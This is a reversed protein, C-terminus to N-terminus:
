YTASVEEYPLGLAAAIEQGLGRGADRQTRAVLIDPTGDRGVLRVREHTGGPGDLPPGMREVRVATFQRVPYRGRPGALRVGYLMGPQVEVAEATITGRTAELSRLFRQGFWVLLAGVLLLQFAAAPQHSAFVSYLIGPAVVLLLLGLIGRFTLNVVPTTDFHYPLLM